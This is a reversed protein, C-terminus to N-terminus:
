DARSVSFSSSASSLWLLIEIVVNEDDLRDM